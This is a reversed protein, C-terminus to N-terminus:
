NLRARRQAVGAERRADEQRYVATERLLEEHSEHLDQYDDGATELCFMAADRQRRVHRLLRACRSRTAIRDAALRTNERHLALMWRALMGFGIVLAVVEM